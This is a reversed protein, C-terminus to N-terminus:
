VLDTRNVESYPRFCVSVVAGQSMQKVLYFKFRVVLYLSNVDPYQTKTVAPSRLLILCKSTQIQSCPTKGEM